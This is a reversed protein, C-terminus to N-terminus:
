KKANEIKKVNTIFEVEVEQMSDMLKNIDWEYIKVTRGNSKEVFDPLHKREVLYIAPEINEYIHLVLFLKNM